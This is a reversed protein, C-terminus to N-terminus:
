AWARRGARELRRWAGPLAALATTRRMRQREVLRGAVLASRGSRGRALQRLREEAVVADQHSGIVDQVRKARTVVRKARKGATAAVLEAAYRTRKAKIRVAHLAAAGDDERLRRFAKRLRRFEADALGTLSTEAGAVVPLAGAAQELEDVLALYRDSALTELLQAQARERADALSALLPELAGRDEADLTEAESRLRDLLVDADRAPGLSRGLWDLEARLREGTAPEVVDRAARLLARMRRVAVRLGHVDDPSGGLRAGPDHALLADLQEAVRARVHEELPASAPPGPAEELQVTRLLKPRGDHRGAGATRLASEIRELAADDGDHLEVEIESFTATARRGDLVDVSDVVVDALDREDEGRVRVGRRRTRLTAVRVLKRGRVLAVLLDRLEAPPGSPGGPAEVEVRDDGRPVKLQWTNKGNELRRRLTCGARLLRRDDTDYYTSTFLRPELPEGGLEPLEFGDPAVLKRERELLETVAV